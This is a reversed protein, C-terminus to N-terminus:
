RATEVTRVLAGDSLSAAVSAVVPTDPALGGTIEILAGARRGVTVKTKVLRSDAALAFVYAAGDRLLVAPQPLTSIAGGGLKFEGRALMGARVGSGAPLDVYVLGNHTVPDVTPAVERVVGAVPASGSPQLSVPSGPRLRGLDTAAVEARWELRGKVIIRFMEHGASLVAGQTAARSAVVGDDPARVRTHKVRLAQVHAAARLGEVRASATREATIYQQIQQASLAGTDKLQRARQANLAAEQAAAEAETVNARLQAMEANLTESDFEALVEGAQVISGVGVLVRSLRLGSVEASVIAEQWAAINGTAVLNDAVTATRLRVVEVVPAAPSSAPMAAAATAAKDKIPPIGGTSRPAGDRMLLALVATAVGACVLLAPLLAPHRYSLKRLPNRFRPSM